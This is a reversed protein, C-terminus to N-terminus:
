IKENISPPKTNLSETLLIRTPLSQDLVKLRNDADILLTLAEYALKYFNYPLSAGGENLQKELLELDLLARQRDAQAKPYLIEYLKNM